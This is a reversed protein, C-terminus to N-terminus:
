KKAAPQTSTSPAKKAVPKASTGPAKKAQPTSKKSSSHKAAPKAQAPQAQRLKIEQAHREVAAARAPDTSMTVGSGAGQAYVGSAMALSMLLIM